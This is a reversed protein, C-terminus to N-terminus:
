SVRGGGRLYAQYVLWRASFPLYALVASPLFVLAALTRVLLLPTVAWPVDLFLTVPFLWRYKRGLDPYDFGAAALLYLRVAAGCLASFMLLPFSALPGFQVFVRGLPDPLQQVVEFNALLAAYMALYAVQILILLARALNRPIAFQVAATQAPAASETGALRGLDRRLNSFDVLLERASQYREERRKRLCKRLIRDLEAPAAPNREGVPAAEQKLINAITSTATKGLFPNVGTALEYLVVGLAHIDARNDASEGELQEPAMYNVTGVLLGKATALSATEAGSDLAPAPALPQLIKALGFDLIKTRGPSQPGPTLMINEPKLDRHVVGRDHAAAMSDALQVALELVEDTTPRNRNLRERLTVGEVYEYVIFCEGDAELYDYVTAIGPHNLASAARAEQALRRRLEADHTLEAPLTKLAVTRGLRTDRARYVRGMGGRGIEQEIEYRDAKLMTGLHLMSVNALVM